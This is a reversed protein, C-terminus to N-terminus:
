CCCHAASFSIALTVGPGLWLVISLEAKAVTRGNGTRSEKFQHREPDASTSHRRRGTGTKRGVFDVSVRYLPIISNAALSLWLGRSGKVQVRTHINRVTMRVMLDVNPQNLSHLSVRVRSALHTHSLTFHPIIKISNLGYM